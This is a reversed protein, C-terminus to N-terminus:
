IYIICVNHIASEEIECNEILRHSIDWWMSFGRGGYSCRCLKLIYIYFTCTYNYARQKKRDRMRVELTVAKLANGHRQENITAEYHFTTSECLACCNVQMSSTCFRCSFHQRRPHLFTPHLSLFRNCLSRMSRQLCHLNTSRRRLMPKENDAPLQGQNNHAHTCQEGLWISPYEKTITMQAAENWWVFLTMEMAIIEIEFGAINHWTKRAEARKDVKSVFRFQKTAAFISHCIQTHFVNSRANFVYSPVHDHHSKCPANM